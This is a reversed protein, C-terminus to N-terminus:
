SEKIKIFHKYILSRVFFDILNAIAFIYLNLPTKIFILCILIRVIVGIISGTLLIKPKGQIVCLAKYSEYPYLGFMALSYFFIYPFCDLFPLSGHSIVLNIFSLAFNLLLVILFCKKMYEKMILDQEIKSKAKPIKIMLAASYANTIIELNLCISYCVSHIAYKKTGLNSALIGYILIFIRSIIRELCLVVGYKKINNLEDKAPFNFKFKSKYLLYLFSILNALITAVFLLILNHYLVLFLLDLGILFFYYIILGMRYLKLNSKLRIAELIGYNLLTTPLYLIYISLVGSLLNKQEITLSFLNVILNRNIFIMLGLFFSVIGTIFLYALENKRIVRYTYIGVEGISRTLFNIFILSGCVIIADISISNNFFSDVSDALNMLIFSILISIFDNM